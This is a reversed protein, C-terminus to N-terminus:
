DKINICDLCQTILDTFQCTNCVLFIRICIDADTHNGIMDTRHCKHCRITNQWRVLSPAIYEATQKTTRCSMASQETDLTREQCLKGLSHNIYGLICIRLKCLLLLM